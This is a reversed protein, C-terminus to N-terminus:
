DANLMQYVLRGHFNIDGLKQRLFSNEFNNPKQLKSRSAILVERKQITLPRILPAKSYM